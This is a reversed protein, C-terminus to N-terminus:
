MLRSDLLLDLLARDVPYGKVEEYTAGPRGHNIIGFEGEFEWLSYGWGCEKFVSLLDSLWRLAVDNPTKNYCGFEGIHIKVGQAEVDRWPQYFEFLAAKDWTRGAFQTGPYIPFPQGEHDPWWAAQYHSINQPQYGRGSHIVDLDALEPMALNGADLGDIVIERDPDIARITAVTRRILAAHNERTFGYQGIAPPENVLDFSLDSNSVGKYREAFQEWISVLTDQAIKDLWLNYRELHNGNICYGPARHLNLCLHLGRASCAELYRGIFEWTIEDPQFYIFDRTWFRGETPIDVLGFNALAELLCKYFYFKRGRRLELKTYIDKWISRDALFYGPDRAWFRYDVPLRVFNFGFEALFDLAREDPAAPQKGPEWSFMWQFNFGYHLM